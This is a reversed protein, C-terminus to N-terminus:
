NVHFVPETYVSGETTRIVAHYTGTPLGILSLTLETGSWYKQQILRGDASYLTVVATIAPNAILTVHDRAPNPFVAIHEPEPIYVQRVPSFSSSDPGRLILRYDDYGPTPSLDTYQYSVTGPISAM